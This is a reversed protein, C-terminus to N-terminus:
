DKFAYYNKRQSHTADPIEKITGMQIAGTIYQRATKDSCGSQQMIAEKLQKQGEVKGGLELIIERVRGPPCMVDSETLRHLFNKDRELLLPKPEPGNRVKVYELTRLIKHEHKKHTLALLTDAWDKISSAGRTRYATAVGESPKGFHHVVISTTNTKRSIETVTDLIRRMQVNDNENVSHLSTLPDWIIVDANSEKILELALEKGRSTGLDIRLTPESFSLLDPFNEIGLGKVMRKLRIAETHEPNEFQFTFVRRSKPIDMGLFPWGMVLHLALELRFTSKGVGSEGALIMGAGAPLIGNEIVQDQKSYKKTLLEIAPIIRRPPTWLPTNKICDLIAEKAKEGSDFRKIFDSIDGKSPLDPLEVVKVISAVKSVSEAVKKTHERGPEDNDQFVIVEKGKLFHSLEDTWKGAGGPNCTACFSDSGYLNNCNISDKEGEVIFIKQAKIVRPLEFLVKRLGATSWRWGGNGDPRRQPFQKKDTRCVQFLLNGAEDVYDYSKIINMKSNHAQTTVQTNENDAVLGQDIAWQKATKFDCGLSLKILDFSDGHEKCNFCYFNQDEFFISFCTGGNSDHGAPCNGGYFRSGNKQEPLCGLVRATEVIDPKVM